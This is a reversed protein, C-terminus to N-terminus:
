PFPGRRRVQGRSFRVESADHLFQVYKIKEAIGALTIRGLPYALLHIYLKNAAPNFTLLTNPPAVIGAPAETCGYISRGNVKMWAGM